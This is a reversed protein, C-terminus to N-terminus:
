AGAGRWFVKMDIFRELRKGLKAEGAAMVHGYWGKVAATGNRIAAGNGAGEQLEELLGDMTAIDNVIGLDDQLAGIRRLYRKVSKARYLEQLSDAAYRLKKVAIRLKHRQARTLQDFQKALRRAKRHRRELLDAALNGLPALLHVSSESVTQQRWGRTETWTLMRLVFDTYRPATITQQVLGYASRRRAQAASSLEAIGPMEPFHRELPQLHEAFVDWNRAPGLAAAIWKMEGTAWLRQEEPIMPRFLSFTARLRRLAVRMQHVGEEDGGLAAQDHALMHWLAHRLIASLAEEAPLEPTLEVKGFGRGSADRDKDGSLLAYGRDAKSRTEIRLPAAENLARALEYLAQPPGSKLELDLECVPLTAGEPTEIHGEDCSVEVTTADDPHIVRTSRRIRSVFVPQLRSPDIDGLQGHPALRSLDPAAHPVPSRWESSTPPVSAKGNAGILTQVYRRGEKGVRLALSRRYLALDPTDFYTSALARRSARASAVLPHHRLRRMQEPTVALKLELDPAAASGADSQDVLAM